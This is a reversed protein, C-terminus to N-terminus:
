MIRPTIWDLDILHELHDTLLNDPNSKLYKRHEENVVTITEGILWAATRYDWIWTVATNGPNDLLAIADAKSTKIARSTSIEGVTHIAYHTVVRRQNIWVGSIRYEAM